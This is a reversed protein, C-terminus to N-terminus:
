ECRDLPSVTGSTPQALLQQSISPLLAASGRPSRQEGRAIRNGSLCTRQTVLDQQLNVLKKRLDSSWLFSGM